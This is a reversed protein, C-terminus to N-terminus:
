RVGDDPFRAPKPPRYGQPEAWQELGGIRSEISGSWLARQALTQQQAKVIMLADDITKAYQGFWYAFLMLPILNAVVGGLVWVKMTSVTTKIENGVRDDVMKQFAETRPTEKDTLASVVQEIIARTQAADGLSEPM